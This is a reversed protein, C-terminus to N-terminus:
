LKKVTINTDKNKSLDFFLDAIMDDVWDEAGEEFKRLKRQQNMAKLTKEIVNTPKIGKEKIKRAIPFVATQSIGKLRTWKSIASIPPYTGPRRGKDVYKLYDEARLQITYLTGMATKIVRSDLSKILDGSANKDQKKLQDALENIYEKGFIELAKVLEKDAKM